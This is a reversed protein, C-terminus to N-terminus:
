TMPAHNRSAAAHLPDRDALCGGEGVGASFDELDFADRDPHEAALALEGGELIDARVHSSRDALALDDGAHLLQDGGVLGAEAQREGLVLGVDGAGPVAVLEIDGGALVLAIRAQPQPRHLDLDEVAVEHDREGLARAVPNRAPARM